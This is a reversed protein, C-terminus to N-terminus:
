GLYVELLGDPLDMHLIKKKLDVGEITQEILPLLVEKGKYTLKALWQSATQMIDEIPGLDGGTKDIVKFGIWLLPSDTAHKALVDENVYVHKGVLKRAAEVTKTDEFNLVYEGEKPAKLETIFFPIRSDKNMEVFLIDEKKLWKSHGIIHTMIVSGTLGHTAVIKGIRLM